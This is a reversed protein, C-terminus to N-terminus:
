RGCVRFGYTAVRKNLSLTYKIYAPLANSLLASDREAFGRQVRVALTVGGALSGVLREAVPDGAPTGIARFRSVFRRQIRIQDAWIEATAAWLQSQPLTKAAQARTRIPVLERQTQRCVLDGKRIFESRTPAANASAVGIVAALLLAGFIARRVGLANALPWM